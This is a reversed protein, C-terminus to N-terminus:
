FVIPLKFIVLQMWPKM